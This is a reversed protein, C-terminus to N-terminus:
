QGIHGPGGIIANLTKRSINNAGPDVTTVNLNFPSFADAVRTWIERIASLEESNFSTIDGDLDYIKQEAPVFSEYKESGDFDLYLNAPAGPLSSLQPIGTLSLLTRCELAEPVVSVRRSSLRRMTTDKGCCASVLFQGRM